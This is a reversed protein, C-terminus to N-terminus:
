KFINAEVVKHYFPETKFPDPINLEDLGKLKKNQEPLETMMEKAIKGYPDLKYLLQSDRMLDYKNISVNNSQETNRIIVPRIFVMLNKKSLNGASRKFANGIFPIDGLIPIKSEGADKQDQILGGLVLIDENDVTVVTKITRETTTPQNDNTGRSLINGTTNEVALKVANGKTIMPTIKMTLGVNRYEFQNRSDGTGSVTSIDAIKFPINDAVVIEAAENDMTVISPTSLINSNIDQALANIVARIDGGRLFGISAGSLPLSQLIDLGTGPTLNPNILATSAAASANSPTAFSTGGAFGQQIHPLRWEIGLNLIHQMSVEVILAEVLVQYRRVDLKDIVAKLSRMLDPPATIVLANTNPEATIGPASVTGGEGRRTDALQLTSSFTDDSNTSSSSSGNYNSASSPGGTSSRSSGGAAENIKQNYYADIVSALVPVLDEANQYQIYKVETDGTRHTPADMQAILARMKLRKTNDGSLLISNTRTDAAMKIQQTVPEGLQQNKAMLNTLVTVVENASADQLGIIEVDETSEQDIKEVIDVIRKVNNAHDAIVIVNSPSYPAIHGQQNVLNRLIPILATATVHKVAIVQVVMEDGIATVDKGIVKTDFAKAVSTPVIKTIPGSDVTSFGLVQLISLFAEYAQDNTMPENSVLSAKGTVRPDIVFNRGTIRSMEGILALIDVNELNWIRKGDDKLDQRPEQQTDNQTVNIKSDVAYLNNINLILLFSMVLFIKLRAMMGQKNVSEFFHTLIM